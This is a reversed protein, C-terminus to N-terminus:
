DLILNGIMQVVGDLECSLMTQSHGEQLFVGEGYEHIGRTGERVFLLQLKRIKKIVLHIDILVCFSKGVYLLELIRSDLNVRLHEVFIAEHDRHAKDFIGVGNSWVLYCRM